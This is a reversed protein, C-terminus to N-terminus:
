CVYDPHQSDRFGLPQHMYVTESLDGHLFANKVDLQHITWHRSTALIIVTRITGPKVDPSFTEDVDIGELQTSGNAVLCANYRSLSGDALYKHRFLWMCRVINTDPPRPVLTWTKNKILANYEDYVDNQWNPHNFADHYSKPLPSVSSVHLNLRHTPRNTGVCFRTVMPHVSYPNPYVPPTQAEASPHQASSPPTQNQAEAPSLHDTPSHHAVDPSVPTNQTTSHSPPHQTANDVPHQQAATTPTIIPNPTNPPPTAFTNNPVTPHATQFLPSLLDLLDDLFITPPRPNPYQFAMHFCSKMLPSM